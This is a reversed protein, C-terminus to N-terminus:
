ANGDICVRWCKNESVNFFSFYLSYARIFDAKYFLDSLFTKESRTGFNWAEVGDQASSTLKKRTYLRKKKREKNWFCRFLQLALQEMGKMFVEWAKQSCINIQMCKHGNNVAYCKRLMNMALSYIITRTCFHVELPFPLLYPVQVAMRCPVASDDSSM